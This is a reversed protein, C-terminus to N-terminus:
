MHVSTSELEEIIPNMRGQMEALLSALGQKRDDALYGNPNVGGNALQIVGVEFKALADNAQDVLLDSRSKPDPFARRITAQDSAAEHRWRKASNGLEDIVPDAFASQTSLMSSRWRTVLHLVALQAGEMRQEGRLAEAESKQERALEATRRDQRRNLIITTALALFAVIVGAWAAWDSPTM